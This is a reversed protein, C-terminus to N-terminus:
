HPILQVTGEPRLLAAATKGSLKCAYAGMQFLADRLRDLAVVM